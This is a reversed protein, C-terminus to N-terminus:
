GFAAPSEFNTRQILRSFVPPHDSAVTKNGNTLNSLMALSLQLRLILLTPSPLERTLLPMPTLEEQGLTLEEQELTLEQQELTLEGLEM